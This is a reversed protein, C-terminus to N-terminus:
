SQRWRWKPVRMPVKRTTRRSRSGTAIAEPLADNKGYITIATCNVVVADLIARLDAHKAQPNKSPDGPDLEKKMTALFADIKAPTVAGEPQTAATERDM